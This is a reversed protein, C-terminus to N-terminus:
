YKILVRSEFQEPGGGEPFYAHLRNGGKDLEPLALKGFQFDTRITLNSVEVRGGPPLKVALTYGFVPSPRFNGMPDSWDFVNKGNKLRFSLAKEGDPGSIIIFADGAKKRVAARISGGVVPFPSTFGLEAYGTEDKSKNSLEIDPGSASLTLGGGRMDAIDAPYEFYGNYYRKFPAESFRAMYFKGWNFNTFVIKEGRRLSYDLVTNAGFVAASSVRNDATSLFIERSSEPYLGSKGLTDSTYHDFRERRAALDEVGYVAASDDKPHFYIRHDPDFLRWKGGAFAEAVVHGELSWIRAKLGAATLLAAEVGAADDCLGYGYQALYKIVDHEEAGETPPYDHLHYALLFEYVARARALEGSIEAFGATKMLGPVSNWLYKKYIIPGKAPSVGKNRIEYAYLRPRRKLEFSPAATDPRLIEDYAPESDPLVPSLGDGSNEQYRRMALLHAREKHLLGTVTLVSKADFDGAAPPSLYYSKFAERLYLKEEGSLTRGSSGRGGRAAQRDEGTYLGGFFAAGLFGLLLASYIILTKSRSL